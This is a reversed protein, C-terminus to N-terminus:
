VREREVSRLCYAVFSISSLGGRVPNDGRVGGLKGSRWEVTLPQARLSTSDNFFFFIYTLQLINHGSIRKSIFKMGLVHLLGFTFQDFKALVWVLCRTSPVVAVALFCCLVHILLTLAHYM